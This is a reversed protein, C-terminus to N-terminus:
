KLTRLSTMLLVILAGSDSRRLAHSSSTAVYYRGDAAGREDALQHHDNSVERATATLAARRSSSIRRSATKSHATGVRLPEGVHEHHGVLNSLDHFAFSGDEVVVGGQPTGHFTAELDKPFGGLQDREFKVMRVWLNWPAIHGVDSVAEAVPELSRPALIPEDRGWLDHLIRAGLDNLCRRSRGANPPHRM